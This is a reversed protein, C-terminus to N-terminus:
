RVAEPKALEAEILERLLSRHCRSERVCSSSCMLTIREGGAVRRALAEVKEHRGRVEKRYTARYTAWPIPTGTKGHFAALLEKSPGLDPDWEDWTEDSKAVGRPRFRCILIRTGDHPDPPDNWRKTRIPPM